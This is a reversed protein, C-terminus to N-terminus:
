KNSFKNTSRSFLHKALLHFHIRTINYVFFNIIELQAVFHVSFFRIDCGEFQFEANLKSFDLINPFHSSYQKQSSFFNYKSFQSSNKTWFFFSETTEKWKLNTHPVQESNNNNKKKGKIELFFCMGTHLSRTFQRQSM